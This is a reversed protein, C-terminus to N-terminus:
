YTLPSSQPDRGLNGDGWHPFQGLGGKELALGNLEFPAVSLREKSSKPFGGRDIAFGAYPRRTGKM